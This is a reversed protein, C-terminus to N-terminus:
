QQNRFCIFYIRPLKVEPFKSKYDLLAESLPKEIDNLDAFKKLCDSYLEKVVPDVLYDHLQKINNEDNISGSIFFRYQKQLIPLKQKLSDPNIKFLEKEYRHIVLGGSLLDKNLEKNKGGPKCSFCFVFLLLYIFYYNKKNLMLLGSNLM